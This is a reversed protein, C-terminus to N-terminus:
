SLFDRFEEYTYCAAGKLLQDERVKLFDIVSVNRFGCDGCRFVRIYCARRGTPIEQEDAIQVANKIYYEANEPHEDGFSVPLVYLNESEMQMSGKCKSCKPDDTLAWKWFLRRGIAELHKWIVGRVM